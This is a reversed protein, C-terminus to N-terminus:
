RSDFSVVARKVTPSSARGDHLILRYQWFQAAPLGIIQASRMAKSFKGVSKWPTSDLGAATSAGRLEFEVNSDFPTTGEWSISKPVVAETTRHIASVYTERFTRDYINGQDVGSMMHAGVTPLLTRRQQRFGDPGNWFIPSETRHSGNQFHNAVVLDIWGDGNLDASAAGSASGAHLATRNRYSLGNQSGWYIYSDLDRTFESDYNSIFVDLFGDRNFDAITSHEGGESPLDMRNMPSYGGPSGWYVYSHIGQYARNPVDALNNVVIDLWGNHDLDAIQESVTGIGPLITRSNESYGTASGWFIQEGDKVSPILLDLWGDKNLDAIFPFVPEGDVRLVQEQAHTFGDSGGFFLSITDDDLNTFLLDLRGDRNIDAVACGMAGRSPIASKNHSSLGDPGGWYIYSGTQDSPGADEHSNTFVVDVFGDDNLDAICTEYAGVTPLDIRRHPSYQGNASGLYIYSDLDGRRRADVRNGFIVDHDNLSVSAAGHTLLGARRNSDYGEKSGWYIYSNTNYSDEDRENAFVIDPFGDGDLDGIAVDVADNTPLHTASSTQYVVGSSSRRGWLITSEKVSKDRKGKQVFVLDSIGDGNLDAAALRVPDPVSVTENLSFARGGPQFIKIGDAAAVIVTSGSLIGSNPDNIPFPTPHALDLGGPGGWYVRSDSGKALLLLDNKGDLDFDGILCSRAGDLPLVSVDGYSYLSDNSRYIRSRAYGQGGPAVFVLDPRSDGTVDGICVDQVNPTVLEMHTRENWGAATGWYIWSNHVNGENGDSPGVLLDPLGDGNLDAVRVVSSGNGPLQVLKPFRPKQEGFGYVYVPESHSRDHTNSFPLDYFNDGNVDFRHITQLVGRRSVYLNTGGADFQGQRFADFGETVWVERSSGARVLTATGVLLIGTLLVATLAAVRRRMTSSKLTKM